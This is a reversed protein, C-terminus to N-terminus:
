IQVAHPQWISGLGIGTGYCWCRLWCALNLLNASMVLFYIM